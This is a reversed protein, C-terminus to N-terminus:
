FSWAYIPAPRNKRISNHVTTHNYPRINLDKHWTLTDYQSDLWMNSKENMEHHFNYENIIRTMVKKNLTEISKPYPGWTDFTRTMEAYISEQPVIINVTLHKNIYQNITSQLFELNGVTFFSDNRNMQSVVHSTM